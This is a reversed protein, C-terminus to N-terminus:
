QGWALYFKQQPGFTLQVPQGGDAHMAWVQWDGGAARSVFAIWDGDPSWTPNTHPGSLHTLQTRGTGDANMAYIQRLPLNQPGQPNAVFAIRKGDPSWTPFDEESDPTNTINRPVGQGSLVFIDQPLGDGAPASYALVGQRSWAIWAVGTPGPFGVERNALNVIALRWPQDASQRAAFALLRSDPSWAPYRAEFGEPSIQETLGDVSGVVITENRTIALQRGDPSWAPSYAGRDHTIQRAQASDLAAVFIDYAGQDDRQGFAIRGSAGPLAWEVRAPPLTPHAGPSAIAPQSPRPTSTRIARVMIAGLAVVGLLLIVLLALSVPPGPRPRQPALTPPPPLQVTARGPPTIQQALKRGPMAEAQARIIAHLDRRMADINPYRDHPNLATARAVVRALALSIAPNLDPLALMLLGTPAQGGLLHHLTAGLSYIDSREDTQGHGYQEPPAYGPTGIVLTDSTQEPRFLRAIGFDILKLSPPDLSAADGNADAPDLPAAVMINAPKLDRFIIPPRHSHLYALVDCLQLACALVFAEPLPGGHQALVDRLTHGPVYEMVLFARSGEQFYDWIRTLGPHNLQALMCAEHEFMEAAARQGDASLRAEDMEKIAVLRRLRQDEALYVAGFGGSGLLRVVSYRDLILDGSSAM